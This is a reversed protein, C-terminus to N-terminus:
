LILYMGGWVCKIYTQDNLEAPWPIAMSGGLESVSRIVTFPKKVWM